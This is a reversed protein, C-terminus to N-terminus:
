RFARGYQGRTNGSVRPPEKDEIRRDLNWYATGVNDFFYHGTKTPNDSTQQKQYHDWRPGKPPEAPRHGRAQRDAPAQEWLKWHSIGAGMLADLVDDWTGQRISGMSILRVDDRGGAKVRAIVEDILVPKVSRNGIAAGARRYIERPTVTETGLDIRHFVADRRARTAIDPDKGFAQRGEPHFVIFLLPEVDQPAPKPDRAPAPAPPGGTGRGAEHDGAGGGVGFEGGLRFNRILFYLTFGVGIGLVGKGVAGARSNNRSMRDREREEHDSRDKELDGPM